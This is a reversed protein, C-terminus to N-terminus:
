RKVRVEIGGEALVTASESVTTTEGGEDAGAVPEAVATIVLDGEEFSWAKASGDEEVGMMYPASTAVHVPDAGEQKPDDLYFAVAKVIEPDVGTLEVTHTIGANWKHGALWFPEGGDPTLQVHMGRAPVPRPDPLKNQELARQRKLERTFPLSEPAATWSWESGKKKLMWVDASETQEALQVGAFVIMADDGYPIATHGTRPPPESAGDPLSMTSWRWDEGSTNLVCPACKDGGFLVIDGGVPLMTAAKRKQPMSGLVRPKTWPDKCNVIFPSGRVHSPHESGLDQSMISM